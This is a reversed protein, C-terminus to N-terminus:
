MAAGSTINEYVTPLRVSRETQMRSLRMYVVRGIMGCTPWKVPSNQQITFIRNITVFCNVSFAEHNGLFAFCFTGCCNEIIVSSISLFLLAIGLLCM